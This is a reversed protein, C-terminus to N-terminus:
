PTSTTATSARRWAGSAQTSSAAPPRRPSASCTSAARGGEFKWMSVRQCAMRALIVDMVATRVANRDIRGAYFEGLLEQLRRGDQDQPTM